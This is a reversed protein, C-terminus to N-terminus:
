LKPVGKIQRILDRVLLGKFNHGDDIGCWEGTSKSLIYDMQGTIPTHFLLVRNENDIQINYQGKAPGLDVLLFEGVGEEMGRTLFLDDNIAELPQLAEYLENLLKKSAKGFEEPDTVAEHQLRSADIEDDEDGQELHIRAKGRRRRVPLSVASTAHYSQRQEVLHNVTTSICPRASIRLARQLVHPRRLIRSLM